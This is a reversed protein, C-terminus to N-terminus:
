TSVSCFVPCRRGSRRLRLRRDRDRGRARLADRERARREVADARRAAGRRRPPRRLDCGRLEVRQLAASSFTAERLECREFLVDKLAAEEFDCESMRCDRFVVRELKAFRLNVLDLRCDDFTVDSLEAEALEAGTLRCTRLEARRAALGRVPRSNAWDVGTVRSTSSSASSPRLRPTKRPNRHTPRSRHSVPRPAGGARITATEGAEKGIAKRVETKVPLKHTGDGMAMFSSAPLPLWGGNGRVKVLGRTGFFSVQARALGRLDLRGQRPEEAPGGHVREALLTAM